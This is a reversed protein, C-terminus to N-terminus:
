TMGCSTPSALALPPSFDAIPEEDSWPKAGWKEACQAPEPEQGGRRAASVASQLRTMSARGDLELRGGPSPPEPVAPAAQRERKRVGGAALIKSRTRDVPKDVRSARQSQPPPGLLFATHCLLEPVRWTGLDSKPPTKLTPAVSFGAAPQPPIGAFSRSLQVGPSLPANSDDATLEGAGKM